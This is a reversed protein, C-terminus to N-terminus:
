KKNWPWTFWYGEHTKYSNTQPSQDNIKNINNKHTHYKNLQGLQKQSLEYTM